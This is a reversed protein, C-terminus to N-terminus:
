LFTWNNNYWKFERRILNKWRVNLDSLKEKEKKIIKNLVLQEFELNAIDELIKKEEAKIKKLKNKRNDIITNNTDIENKLSIIKNIIEKM